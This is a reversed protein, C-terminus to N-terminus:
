DLSKMYNGLAQQVLANVRAKQEELTGAAHGMGSTPLGVPVTQEPLLACPVVNETQKQHVPPANDELPTMDGDDM